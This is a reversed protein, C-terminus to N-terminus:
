FQFRHGDVLLIRVAFNVLRRINLQGIFQFQGVRDLSEIQAFPHNARGGRLCPAKLQIDPHVHEFKVRQNVPLDRFAGARRIIVGVVHFLITVLSYVAAKKIDMGFLFMLLAVNIPGGGIGLFASFIGLAVGAALYIFVNQFQFRKPNKILTYILVALVLVGLVANQVLKVFNDNGASEIIKDLLVQGAFGGGVAGVGLAAAKGYMIETKKIINRILSALAMAFVAAGTLIGITAADYEGILDMVPKLVVGGGMGSITGMATILLTLVVYVIIM